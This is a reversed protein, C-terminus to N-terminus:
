SSPRITVHSVLLQQSLLVSCLTCPVPSMTRLAVDLDMQGDADWDMWMGQLWSRRWDVDM